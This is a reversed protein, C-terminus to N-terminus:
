NVQHGQACNLQGKKRGLKGNLCYISITKLYKSIQTFSPESSVQKFSRSIFVNLFVKKLKCFSFGSLHTQNYSEAVTIVM